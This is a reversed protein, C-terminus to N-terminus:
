SLDEGFMKFMAMQEESLLGELASEPSDGMDNMMQMMASMQKFQEMNEQMSSFQNMMEKDSDSLYPSLYKLMSTIDTEKKKFCSSNCLSNSFRLTIMLENLKIYIAIFRQMKEQMFPLVIKLMQMQNSTYLTDFATVPDIEHNEYNDM